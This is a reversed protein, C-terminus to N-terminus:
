MKSKGFPFNIGLTLGTNSKLPVGQKSLTGMMHDMGIFLNFGRPHINAVWGFSSGRTGFGFNASLEFWKVPSITASIREENWTYEGQFRTTSLLGVSLKKYFPMAYEVGINM